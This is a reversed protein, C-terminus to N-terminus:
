VQIKGMERIPPVFGPFKLRAACSGRMGYCEVENGMKECLGLPGGSGVERNTYIGCFGDLKETTEAM